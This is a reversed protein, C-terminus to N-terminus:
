DYMFGAVYAGSLVPAGGDYCSSTEGLWLEVDPLHKQIYSGANHCEEILSDLLKVRTFDPLVATHGVM